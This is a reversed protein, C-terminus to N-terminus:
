ADAPIKSTLSQVANVFGSGVGSRSVQLIDNLGSASSIHIEDYLCIPLQRNNKFRRDPGGKKNVYRWTRDVVTADNPAPGDEIFRQAQVEFRLGRYSAAGVGSSDYILVRDPFFHLTQRGVGIAITEVNTKLYPPATKRVFTPQRRVLSSAGAHYKRDRVRAEAEIHWVRASQALSQASEHLIAYAQELEPDFSYFLVVTKSLQDYRYAVAIAAFGVAAIVALLLLSWGSWTAALLGVASASLAFPWLRVRRRKEDIEKLLAASSSDV